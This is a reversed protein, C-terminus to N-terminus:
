CCYYVACLLLIFSYVLWYTVFCIVIFICLISPYYHWFYKFSYQKGCNEIRYQEFLQRLFEVLTPKTVINKCTYLHKKQLLVLSYVVNAQLQIQYKCQFPSM